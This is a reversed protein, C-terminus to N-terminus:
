DSTWTPKGCRQDLEEALAVFLRSARGRPWVWPREIARGRDALDVNLGTAPDIFEHDPVVVAHGRTYLRPARSPHDLITEPRRSPRSVVATDRLGRHAESSRRTHCIANARAILVIPRDSTMDNRPM